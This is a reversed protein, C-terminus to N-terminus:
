WSRVILGSGIYMTWDTLMIYQQGVRFVTHNDPEINKGEQLPCISGDKFVHTVMKCLDYEIKKFDEREETTEAKFSFLAGKVTASRYPYYVLETGDKVMDNLILNNMKFM